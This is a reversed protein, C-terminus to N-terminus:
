EMRKLLKQTAASPAVGIEKMAKACARYATVLADRDNLELAILMRLQWASERYPDTELVHQLAQVAELPRSLLLYEHAIAVESDLM